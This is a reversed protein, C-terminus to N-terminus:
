QSLSWKQILLDKSVEYEQAKYAKEPINNNLWQQRREVFLDSEIFYWCENHVFETKPYAMGNIRQKLNLLYNYTHTLVPPTYMHLCFDDKQVNKYLYDIAVTHMRLGINEQKTRIDTNLRLVGASVLVVILILLVHAVGKVEKILGYLGLVLLTLLVYHIGELYYAWFFSQKYTLSILFLLILLTTIFVVFRRQTSSFKRFSIALGYLAFILLIWVLIGLEDPFLDQYFGKFQFLRVKFVGFWTQPETGPINRFALFSKTQLFGHKLEFLIRLSMPIAIGLLIAGVKKVSGFFLKTNRTLIITLFLSPFLFTGFAVEAEAIMGASIAITFLYILKKEQLYKKSAIILMIIFPMTLISNIPFTSTRIFYPSVAIVALVLLALANGHEKRVFYWFTLAEILAVFTIFYYFSQSAGNTLAFPIALFYYWWAGHFVGQAGTTPGLLTINKDVVIDKAVLFDRGQDYTYPVTERMISPIRLALFLIVIIITAVLWPKKM